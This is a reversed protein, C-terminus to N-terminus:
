RQGQFTNKKSELTQEVVNEENKNEFMSQHEKKIIKIIKIIKEIQEDITLDTSDIEISDEPRKM